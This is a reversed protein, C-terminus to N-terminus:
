NLDRDSINISSLRFKFFIIAFAVYKRIKYKSSVSFNFMDNDFAEKTIIEQPTM